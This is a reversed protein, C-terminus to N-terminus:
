PLSGSGIQDFTYCKEQGAHGFKTRRRTLISLLTRLSVHYPKLMNAQFTISIAIEM